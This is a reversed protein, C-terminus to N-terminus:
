YGHLQIGRGRAQPEASRHHCQRGAVRQADAGTSEEGLFVDTAMFNYEADVPKLNPPDIIVNGAPLASPM